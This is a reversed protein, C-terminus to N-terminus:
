GAAAAGAAGAAGAGAAAQDSAEQAALIALLESRNSGIASTVYVIGSGLGPLDNTWLIAGNEPDLAFARGGAACFVLGDEYLISVVGYGTSPLSTQWITRGSAKEIAAVHGYTGLFLLKHAAITM